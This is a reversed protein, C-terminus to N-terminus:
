WDAGLVEGGAPTIAAKWTDYSIKKANIFRTSGDALGVLVTDSLSRPGALGGASGCDVDPREDNPRRGANFTGQLFRGDMWSAGRNGAINKGEKFDQVGATDKLGKLADAKYAVHQRKVDVAKTQGDGKL